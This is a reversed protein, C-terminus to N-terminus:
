EHKSSGGAFRTMLERFFGQQKKVVEGLEKVLYQRRRYKSPM